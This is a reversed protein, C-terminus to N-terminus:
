SVARSRARLLGTKIVLIMEVNWGSVMFGWWIREIRGVNRMGLVLLGAEWFARGGIWQKWSDVACDMRGGNEKAWTREVDGVRRGGDKGAM